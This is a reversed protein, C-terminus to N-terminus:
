HRTDCPAHSRSRQFGGISKGPGHVLAAASFLPDGYAWNGVFPFSSSILRRPKNPVHRTEEIEAQQEGNAATLRPGIEQSHPLLEARCQFCLIINHSIEFCRGLYSRRIEFGNAGLSCYLSIGVRVSRMGIKRRWGDRVVSCRRPSSYIPGSGKDM